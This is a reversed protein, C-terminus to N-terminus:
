RSTAKVVFSPETVTEGEQFPIPRYLLIGFIHPADAIVVGLQDQVQSIQERIEAQPESLLLLRMLNFQDDVNIRHEVDCPIRKRSQYCRDSRRHVGVQTIFIGM